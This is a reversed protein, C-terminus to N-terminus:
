GVSETLTGHAHLVDAICGTLREAFTVDLFENPGHANSGPGLVGTVVFQANPFQEGLMAMFPITGGEGISRPEEDFWATSSAHLAAALWSATPPADWGTAGWGPSVTVTAGSPPDATLLETLRATIADPDVGPPIRISLGLTTTPRAVNGADALAPLGDAGIVELAPRWTRDLLQEAVDDTAPRTGGTWPFTPPRGLTEASQAAQARREDPIEPYLEDILLRGDSSAEIRDLLARAIRFSSPVIGGAAGSHVGETLVEVRLDVSVLGRLSTTVWLREYDGCGSDLCVVLEPSGLEDGLAELHAPLDPSGSEESCEVVGVIRGHEGGARHLAVLATGLSYVSYGDDAGGRGYLRDGKRVPTWPGLDDDWGVMEPQKDLHGYALVTGDNSAGDTAPVDILLLPTRDLLDRRSVAMGPIGLTELWDSAAVLVADINGADAWDPDFAPSLAPVAIHAEIAPVASDNWVEAVVSTLITRDPPNTTPADPAPHDVM